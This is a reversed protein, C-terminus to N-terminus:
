ITSVLKGFHIVCVLLGLSFTTFEGSSHQEIWQAYASVRTFVAYFGSTCNSQGYSVVGVLVQSQSLDDVCYLPGGSDGSCTTSEDTGACIMSDETFPIDVYFSESSVESSFMPEFEFLSDCATANQIKVEAFQLVSTHVNKGTAGWGAIICKRFTTTDALTTSFNVPKVYDTINLPKKLHLLAIDNGKFAAFYDEHITVDFPSEQHSDSVDNADIDGFVVRVPVPDGPKFDSFCHAASIAWENSILTAGCWLLGNSRVIYGISPFLGAFANSGGHIKLAIRHDDENAKVFLVSVLVVHFRTFTWM